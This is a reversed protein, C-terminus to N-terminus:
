DHVIGIKGTLYWKGDLREFEFIAGHRQSSGKPWLWAKDGNVSIFYRPVLSEEGKQIFRFRYTFSEIGRRKRFSPSMLEYATVVDEERISREFTIYVREIASKDQRTQTGDRTNWFWLLFVVILAIGFMIRKKKFIRGALRCIM